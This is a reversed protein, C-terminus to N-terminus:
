AGRSFEEDSDGRDISEVWAVAVAAVQILEKRLDILTRANNVEQVEEELIHKWALHGEKAAAECVLKGLIEMSNALNLDRPRGFSPHSQKGWREDQRTREDAIDTLVAGMQSLVAHRDEHPKSM